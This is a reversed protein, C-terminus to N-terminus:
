KDTIVINVNNDLSHHSPVTDIPPRAVGRVGLGERLPAPGSGCLPSLVLHGAGGARRGWDEEEGAQEAEEHDQQDGRHVQHHPEAVYLVPHLLGCWLVDRITM